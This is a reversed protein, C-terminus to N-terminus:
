DLKPLVFSPSSLPRPCVQCRKGVKPSPTKLRLTLGETGANRGGLDLNPHLVPVLHEKRCM